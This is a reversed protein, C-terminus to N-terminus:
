GAALEDDSVEFVNVPYQRQVFGDDEVASTKARCFQETVGVENGCFALQHEQRGVGGDIVHGNPAAGEAFVPEQVHEWTTVHDQEAADESRTVATRIGLRVLRFADDLLM